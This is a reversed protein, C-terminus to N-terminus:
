RCAVLPVHARQVMPAVRVRSRLQQPPAHLRVQVYMGRQPLGLVKCCMRQRSGVYWGPLVQGGSSV